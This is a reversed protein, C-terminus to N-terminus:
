GEPLPDRRVSSPSIGYRRRFAKYFTNQSSFGCQTAIGMVSLDTNRLLDMAHSLRLEEVYENYSKGTQDKLFQSVYKRSIQFQEAVMAVNLDPNAYNKELWQLIKQQLQVNHSQKLSDVHSTIILCCECLNQVLKEVPQRHDYSCLFSIDECGAKDAATLLIGRLSFFIQQFNQLSMDERGFCQHILDQANETYGALLYENLREMTTVEPITSLNWVQATLCCVPQSSDASGLANRAQWYVSSLQELRSFRASLILPQNLKLRAHLDATQRCLLAYSEDSISDFALVALVSGDAANHVFPHFGYCQHLQEAVLMLRLEEAGATDQAPPAPILLLYNSQTLHLKECLQKHEAPSSASGTKLLTDMRSHEMQSRTQELELSLQDHTQLKQLILANLVRSDAEQFTGLADLLPLQQRLDLQTMIFSMILCGLLGALIYLWIANNIPRLNEAYVSYPLGIVAVAGLSPIERSVFLYDQGNYTQPSGESTLTLAQADDFHYRQLISGDSSALYFLCSSRWEALPLFLNIIQKERLLMSCTGVYRGNSDFFPQSITLYSSPYATQYLLVEQVSLCSMDESRLHSEWEERTMGRYELTSPYYNDYSRYVRCDDIVMQNRAFTVYSYSVPSLSYTLNELLRSATQVTSDDAFVDDDSGAALVTFSSDHFIKNTVFRVDYLYGEFTSVSSALQESAGTLQAKITQQHFISYMPLLVTCLALPVLLYKGLRSLWLRITLKNRM